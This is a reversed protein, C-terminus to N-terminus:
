ARLIETLMAAGERGVAVVTEFSAEVDFAITLLYSDAVPLISFNLPCMSLEDGIPELLARVSGARALNEGGLIARLSPPIDDEDGAVAVAVGDRDTLLIVIAATLEHIDEVARFLDIQQATPGDM